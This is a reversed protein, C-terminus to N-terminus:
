LSKRQILTFPNKVFGQKKELIMRAATRGMCEHDTSIVTIGELLIEKLPTENYSIIGVDRGIKLHQNRCHKILTVLDTEEIVVYAEGAQVPTRIDMGETTTFDFDNMRCFYRFGKMIEPPYPVIGPKVYVMRNYKRLLDSAECLAAFIDKEFDQYVAAFTNALEPMNKDLLLLQEGPIKGLIEGVKDAQEYFHPMIVYYDYSGLCNAILSEFVQVNCHHIQLDVIANYGLAHVFSNYIQKKYNSIKNFVLLIRLPAHVDVRRIFYGKGKVAEVIKRKSLERYAKEVTDRSLLHRESLENISPLQEGKEMKSDRIAEIVADVICRYKPMRSKFSIDLSTEVNERRHAQVPNVPM